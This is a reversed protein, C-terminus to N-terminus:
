AEGGAVKHGAIPLRMFFTTGRGIETEFSLEGGHKERIASRAIALGQGTGRGVEKTTFFPDFIRARAGEPIGSGTDAISILVYDGDARTSVKILGRRETGRVVDEIAHAANVVMNLVVQNIDGLHCTVLPIDGLDTELDAVYKYESRAVTTTAQIARNLDSPAMEKQTPHAFEKMSRVITTVRELGEISREFAKPMNELLYPLDADDEAESAEEALRALEDGPARAAAREKVERLRELLGFLDTAADCLFHISDNVFQVPTNIEHAVGAALTGVAALRQADALDSQAVKTETVDQAIVVAGTVDAGSRIPGMHNLYWRQRESPDKSSTEYSQPTGTRFVNALANEVQTQQQPLVVEKWHRGVVDEKAVGNMPRNVFRIVHEGDVVLVLAPAYTLVSELQARAEDAELQAVQACEEARKRLEWLALQDGSTELLEMLARDPPRRVRSFLDVVALVDDGCKLPFSLASRLGAALAGSPMVRGLGHEHERLKLDVDLDTAWQVKATMWARGPLGAGPQLSAERISCELAGLKLEPRSWSDRCRLTWSTMDVTWIGAYDWDLETCVALALERCAKLLPVHASLARALSAQIRLHASAACYDTADVHAVAIAGQGRSGSEPRRAILRCWRAQVPSHCPYVLEFEEARGELVDRIGNYAAVGSADGSAQCIDLYNVGVGTSTTDDANNDRGFRRWAANVALIRGKEDLLAMSYPLFDSDFNATEPPSNVRRGNAIAAPDSVVAGAHHWMPLAERKSWPVRQSASIGTIGSPCVGYVM